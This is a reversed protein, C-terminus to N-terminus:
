NSLSFNLPPQPIGNIAYIVSVRYVGDDGATLWDGNVSLSTLGNVYAKISTQMESNILGPDIIDLTHDGVGYDARM